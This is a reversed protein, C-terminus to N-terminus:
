GPRSKEENQDPIVQVLRLDIGGGAAGERLLLTYQLM